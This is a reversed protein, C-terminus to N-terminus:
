IFAFIDRSQSEMYQKTVHKWSIMYRRHWTEQRKIYQRTEAKAAEAAAGLASEGKVVSLLPRVGIARMAPLDPDLGLAALARVEEIAGAAIMRDFRTDARAYLEARDLTVLFRVAEAENVVPVGRVKQWHALSRGTQELVELARVIRQTDASALREAMQADRAMLEGHLDAAGRREAEARWHERIEPDIPPIPSLGEILAKFYLGTGGVIVPRQGAERAKAIADTVDAIFRGTSYAAAAPVFGYLMHPVRAEVDPQPRATLISLERYVQMSDANIIVGGVYEAIALALASKGSATPGAILVPASKNRADSM